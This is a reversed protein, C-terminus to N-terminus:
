SSGVQVLHILDIGSSEFLQRCEHACLRAIKAVLQIHLFKTKAPWRVISPRGVSILNGQDAQLSAHGLLVAPVPHVERGDLALQDCQADGDENDKSGLGAPPLGALPEVKCSRESRRGIHTPQGPSRLKPDASSQLLLEDAFRVQIGRRAACEPSVVGFM